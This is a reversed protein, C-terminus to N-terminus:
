SPDPNLLFSYAAHWSFNDLELAAFAFVPVVALGLVFSRGGLAYLELLEAWVATFMLLV